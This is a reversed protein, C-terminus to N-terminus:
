VFDFSGPTPMEIPAVRSNACSSSIPM